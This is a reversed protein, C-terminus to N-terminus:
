IRSFSDDGEMLSALIADTTMKGSAERILRKEMQNVFVASADFSLAKATRVAAGSIRCSETCYFGNPSQPCQIM